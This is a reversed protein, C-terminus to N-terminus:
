EKVACVNFCIKNVNVNVYYQSTVLATSFVGIRKLAVQCYTKRTSIGPKFFISYSNQGLELQDAYRPGM